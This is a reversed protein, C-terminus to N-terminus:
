VSHLKSKLWFSGETVVEENPELGKIVEVLKGSEKGTVVEIEKFGNPVKIYVVSKDDVTQVAKKNIVLMERPALGIFMKGFMEPKLLNGPNEIKARVTITRTDPDATQSIYSIEGEFSTKPFAEAYFKVKEGPGVEAIDKEYINSELFVESLDSAQFLVANENVIEGPNVLRKLIVGEQQAVVVTRGSKSGADNIDAGLIALRKESLMGFSEQKKELVEQYNLARKYRNEAELFDKKPTIRNEYLEKEINYNNEALSLELRAQDVDGMLGIQKEVIDLELEAIDQSSITAIEEGKSVPQNQDIFVDVIKGRVPSAVYFSKSPIIKVIGNYKLQFSVKKVEAKEVIMGISKIADKSINVIKSTDEKTLSTNKNLACGSLIFNLCILILIKSKFIKEM